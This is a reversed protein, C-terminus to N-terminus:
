FLKTFKVLALFKLAAEHLAHELRLLDGVIWGFRDTLMILWGLLGYQRPLGLASSITSQLGVKTAGNAITWGM